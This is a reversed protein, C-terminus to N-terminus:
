QPGREGSGSRQQGHKHEYNCSSQHLHRTEGIFLLGVPLRCPRSAPGTIHFEKENLMEKQREVFYSHYYLVNSRGHPIIQRLSVM